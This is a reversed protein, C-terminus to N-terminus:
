AKGGNTEVGRKISKALLKELVTLDVDALKRIYLCGAGHKYKGLQQFLPDTFFLGCVYLTLKDKRPSFGLQFSDGEHGSAYRYHRHGFGIMGYNWLVPKLKSVKAFLSVLTRADAQKGADPLAAIFADVSGDIPKSKQEAM